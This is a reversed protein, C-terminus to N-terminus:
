GLSAALLGQWDIRPDGVAIFSPNLLEEKGNYMLPTFDIALVLGGAAELVAQGAATDWESTPALRPYIDADGEALACLKLSSGINRLELAKSAAALADLVPALAQAGHRRSALVRLTTQALSEALTHTRIHELEGGELRKWAGLGVLGLWTLGTVPAHVVGLVPTGDRILAINVTFEGNKNIFEKTGDLPDVLWYEHWQQRQAFSALDGEESLVPLAPKLASLGTAITHHARTDAQTLPSADAKSAFEVDGSRSYVAMIEQGAARAIRCVEHLLETNELM